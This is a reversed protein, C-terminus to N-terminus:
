RPQDDFRLMGVSSSESDSSTTSPPDEAPGAPRVTGTAVESPELDGCAIFVMATVVAAASVM